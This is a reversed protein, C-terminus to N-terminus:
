FINTSMKRVVKSQKNYFLQKKYKIIQPQFMTSHSCLDLKKQKLPKDGHHPELIEDKMNQFELAHM